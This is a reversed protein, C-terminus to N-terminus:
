VAVFEHTPTGDDFRQAFLTRDTGHTGTVFLTGGDSSAVAGSCARVQRHLGPRSL